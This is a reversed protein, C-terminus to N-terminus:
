EKIFLHIYLLQHGTVKSHSCRFKGESPCYLINIEITFPLHGTSAYQKILDPSDLLAECQMWGNMWECVSQPFSRINLGIRNLKQMGGKTSQSKHWQRWTGANGYICGAGGAQQSQFIGKMRNPLAVDISGQHSSDVQQKLWISWDLEHFQPHQTRLPGALREICWTSSNPGFFIKLINTM